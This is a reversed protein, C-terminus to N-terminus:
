CSTDRWLPLSIRSWTRGALFGCRASAAGGRGGRRALARLLFRLELVEFWFPARRLRAQLWRVLVRDPADPQPLESDDDPDLGLLDFITM